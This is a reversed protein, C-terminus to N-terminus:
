IRRLDIAVEIRFVALLWRITLEIIARIVVVAVVAIKSSLCGRIFAAAISFRHTYLLPFDINVRLVYAGDNKLRSMSGESDTSGSEDKLILPITIATYVIQKEIPLLEQKWFNLCGLVGSTFFFATRLLRWPTIPSAKTTKTGKTKVPSLDGIDAYGDVQTWDLKIIGRRLPLKDVTPIPAPFPLKANNLPIGLIELEQSTFPRPFYRCPVISRTEWPQKLRTPRHEPLREVDSRGVFQRDIGSQLPRYPSAPWSEIGEWSEPSEVTLGPQIKETDEQSSVRIDFLFSPKHPKPPRSTKDSNFLSTLPDAGPIATNGLQDLTHKETRDYPRANQKNRGWSGAESQHGSRSIPTNHPNSPMDRGDLFPDKDSALDSYLRPFRFLLSKFEEDMGLPDFTLSRRPTFSPSCSGERNPVTAKAHWRRPSDFFYGNPFFSDETIDAERPIPPLTTPLEEAM